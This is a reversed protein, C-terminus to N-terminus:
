YKGESAKAQLIHALHHDCHWAYLGITEDLTRTKNQEPHFYASKLTKENLSRLLVVWRAHLGVLIKISTDIPGQSDALLAWASEKYPKIIPKEETLALKFRVVSNFHSDACHHVVQRINWGDPRYRWNLEKESLGAAEHTIRQPFKEITVIWEEIDSKAIQAPWKFKGVPYKLSELDNM